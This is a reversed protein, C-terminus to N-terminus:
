SNLPLKFPLIQIDDTKLCQIKCFLVISSVNVVKLQMISLSTDICAQPYMGVKCFSAIVIPFIDFSGMHLVM